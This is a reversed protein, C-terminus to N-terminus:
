HPIGWIVTRMREMYTDAICLYPLLILRLFLNHKTINIENVFKDKFVKNLTKSYDLGVIGVLKPYNWGPISLCLKYPVLNVRWNLTVSAKQYESKKTLYEESKQWGRKQTQDWKELLKKTNMNRMWRKKLRECDGARQSDGASRLKWM